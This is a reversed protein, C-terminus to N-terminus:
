LSFHKPRKGYSVLAPQLFRGPSVLNESYILSNLPMLRLSQDFTPRPPQSGGCGYFGKFVNINELTKENIALVNRSAPFGMPIM